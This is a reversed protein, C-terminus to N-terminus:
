RVSEILKASSPFLFGLLAEAVAVTCATPSWSEQSVADDGASMRAVKFCCAAGFRSEPRRLKSCLYLNSGALDEVHEPPGAAQHAPVPLRLPQQGICAPAAACNGSSNLLTIAGPSRVQSEQAQFLPAVTALVGGLTLGPDSHNRQARELLAAATSDSAYGGTTRSGSVGSEAADLIFPKIRTCHLRRSCM